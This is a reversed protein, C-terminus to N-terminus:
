KLIQALIDNAISDMEAKVKSQEMDRKAIEDEMQNEFSVTGDHKKLLRLLIGIGGLAEVEDPSLGSWEKSAVKGSLGVSHCTVVRQTVTMSDWTEKNRVIM